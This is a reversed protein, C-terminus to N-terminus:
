CKHCRSNRRMLNDRHRVEELLQNWRYFYECGSEKKFMMGCMNCEGSNEYKCGKCYEPKINERNNVKDVLNCDTYEGISNLHESIDTLGIQFKRCPNMKKNNIDTGRTSQSKIYNSYPHYYLNDIIPTHLINFLIAWEHIYDDLERGRLTPDYGDYQGDYIHNLKIQFRSWINSIEESAIESDSYIEPFIEKLTNNFYEINALPKNNMQTLTCNICTIVGERIAQKVTDFELPNVKGTRYSQGLGDHSLQITIKHKKCEDIIAKNLLPLGNTSTTIHYKKKHEKCFSELFYVVEMTADFSTLPDGGWIDFSFYGTNDIDYLLKEELAPFNFQAEEYTFKNLRECEEVIAKHNIGLKYMDTSAACCYTCSGSCQDIGKITISYRKKRLTTHKKAVM